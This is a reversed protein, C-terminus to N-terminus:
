HTAIPVDSPPGGANQERKISIIKSTRTKIRAENTEIQIRETATRNSKQKASTYRYQEAMNPPLIYALPRNRIAPM